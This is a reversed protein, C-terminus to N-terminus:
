LHTYNRQVLRSRRRIRSISSRVFHHLMQYLKMSSTEKPIKRLSFWGSSPSSSSCHEAFNNWFHYICEDYREPQKGWDDNKRKHYAFFIRINGQMNFVFNLVEICAIMSTQGILKWKVNIRVWSSSMFAAASLVSFCRESIQCFQKILISSASPIAHTIEDRFVDYNCRM